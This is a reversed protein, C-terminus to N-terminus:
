PKVRRFEAYTTWPKAAAKSERPRDLTQENRDAIELRDGDVRIIGLFTAGSENTLDIGLPSAFPTVRFLWKEGADPANSSRLTMRGPEMILKAGALLSDSKADGFRFSRCEWTGLLPLQAVAAAGGEVAMLASLMMAWGM